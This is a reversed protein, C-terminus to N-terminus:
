TEEKDKRGILVRELAELRKEMEDTNIARLLADSLVATLRAKDAAPLESEDIQRLRSALVRVVDSADLAKGDRGAPAGQLLEADVLGRRAQNLLAVSARVRDGDRRGQRAVALLTEAAQGTSAQLRGVTADVLERRAHRYVTRFGPLNLWRYLTAESIGAKKAAAAHTPETLLAAVLAEQKRNLRKEPGQEQGGHNVLAAAGQAAEVLDPGTVVGGTDPKPAHRRRVLWAVYRILDVRRGDGIRLGASTRHRYLEREGIVEGLPTSNLLRCLESPRLKQPDTPV